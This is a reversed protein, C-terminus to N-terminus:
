YDTDTGRLDAQAAHEYRQAIDLLGFLQAQM